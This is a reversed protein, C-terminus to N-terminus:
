NLSNLNAYEKYNLIDATHIFYVEFKTVKGTKQVNILEIHIEPTFGRKYM